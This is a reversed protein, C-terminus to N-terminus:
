RAIDITGYVPMSSRSDHISLRRLSIKEFKKKYKVQPMTYYNDFM